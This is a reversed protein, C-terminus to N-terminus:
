SPNYAYEELKQMKGCVSKHCRYPSMPFFIGCPQFKIEGNVNEYKPFDHAHIIGGFGKKPCMKIRYVKNSKLPGCVYHKRQM